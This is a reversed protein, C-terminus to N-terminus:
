SAALKTNQIEAYDAQSLTKNLDILTVLNQDLNAVGLLFEIPVQSKINPNQHIKASDIRVVSEVKDVVAAVPGSETEFVLFALSPTELTSYNFRIRLDVLGVIQGRINILGKFYPVTNPVSKAVQPQVVERVGLLPTGYLNGDLTFLLFRSEDAEDDISNGEFSKMSTM